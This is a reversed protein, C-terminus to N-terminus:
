GWLIINYENLCDLLVALTGKLTRTHDWRVEVVSHPLTTSFSLSCAALFVTNCGSM